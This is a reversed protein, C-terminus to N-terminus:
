TCFQSLRYIMHRYSIFTASPKFNVTDKNQSWLVTSHLRNSLQHITYYLWEAQDMLGVLQIESIASESGSVPGQDLRKCLFEHENITLLLIAKTSYSCKQNDHIQSLLVLQSQDFSLKNMEPSNKNDTM